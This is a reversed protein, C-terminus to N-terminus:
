YMLVAVPEMKAVIDVMKNEDLGELVENIDKYYARDQLIVGKSQANYLRIQSKEMKEFLASKNEPIDSEANKRRGTGHPASFFASDNQDTGTCLYASTSMSSPIFVPEGTRSFVPHDKMKKLGYARVAGNRHVWINEGFHNENEISIHSTDYLLELKIQKGFVKEMARDINHSIVCRNAFGFNAAARHARIFMRGELGRDDYGFFEEKDAYDKIKKALNFYVKKMQSDFFTTGIKLMWKQSRHEKIKPTYMYSAYQGLLGSGTHLLIIYQGPRVGFKKAKDPNIVKSIKMLDLFHNGAAGLIGLRYGAIKIFIKPIVDLIERRSPIESSGGFFNGNLLTNATEDKTRTKFFDVLPNIGLRCTDLAIEYPIKTGVYKKTPVVKVLENFLENIKEPTASKEDLETKLLRMGCNPATDNIQPFLFNKSAAVTGTPNKRGKKPHIDSMASIHQFLRDDSGLNELQRFTEENPLLNESCHFIVPVKM